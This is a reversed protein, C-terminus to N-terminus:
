GMISFIASTCWWDMYQTHALERNGLYMYNVVMDVTTQLVIAYTCLRVNKTAEVKPQPDIIDEPCLPNVDRLRCRSGIM